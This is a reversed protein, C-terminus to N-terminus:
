YNLQLLEHFPIEYDALREKALHVLATEGRDLAQDLFYLLARFRSFDLFTFPPEFFQDLLEALSVEHCRLGWDIWRRKEGFDIKAAQEKAYEWAGLQMLSFLANGLEIQSPSEKKLLDDIIEGIIYPKALWFAIQIAFHQNFASKDEFNSEIFPLLEWHKQLST